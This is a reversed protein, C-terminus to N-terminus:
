QTATNAEDAKVKAYYDTGKYIGCKSAATNITSGDGTEKFECCLLKAANATSFTKCLGRCTAVDAATGLDANEV